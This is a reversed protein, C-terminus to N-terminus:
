KVAGLEREAKATRRRAQGMNDRGSRTARGLYGELGGTTDLFPSPRTSEVWPAFEPAPELLHDFAITRVGATLLALPSLATGPALVPGQFDAGPWGVPRLTAGDRHVPWLASVAGREDRGVVVQVSRGSRQVAAPFGPHFYPSDLAPNVARLRHWADLEEAGLQDFPVTAVTAVRSRLSDSM